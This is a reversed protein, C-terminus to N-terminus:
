ICVNITSLFRNSCVYNYFYLSPHLVCQNHLSYFWTLMPQMVKLLATYIMLKIGQTHSQLLTTFLMTSILKTCDTLPPAVKLMSRRNLPSRPIFDWSSIKQSNRSTEWVMHYRHNFALVLCNWYLRCAHFTQEHTITTLSHISSYLREYNKVKGGCKYVFALSCVATRGM